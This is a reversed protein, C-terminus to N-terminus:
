PANNEKSEPHLSFILALFFFQNQGLVTLEDGDHRDNRTTQLDGRVMEVEIIAAALFFLCFFTLFASM